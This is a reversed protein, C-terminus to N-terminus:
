QAPAEGGARTGLAGWVGYPSPGSTVATASLNGAFITEQIFRVSGDGFLVNVGGPHFSQATVAGRDADGGGALCSPSNPPLVTMFGTYVIGGDAWRMGSWDRVDTVNLMGSVGRTNMCNQPVLTNWGNPGINVATGGLIMNARDRGVVKESMAVTNSTGDRIDSFTFGMPLRKYKGAPDGLAMAGFMGRNVAGNEESWGFCDGRSFGYNACGQHAVNGITQPNGDSPCRLNTIVVQWPSNTGAAPTGCNEWPTPSGSTCGSHSLNDAGNWGMARDYLPRQEIYPLLRHYSNWRWNTCHPPFANYTDHHNHLGLGLQKLNNVCQSRRAAERAAQVAPLLLAILIGIIAIVVLLEVLTFGSSSRRRMM